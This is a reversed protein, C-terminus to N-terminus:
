EDREIRAYIREIKKITRAFDRNISFMRVAHLIRDWDDRDLGELSPDETSEAAPDTNGSPDPEKGPTNRSNEM